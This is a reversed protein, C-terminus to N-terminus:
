KSRHSMELTELLTRQFDTLHDKPTGPRGQPPGLPCWLRLHMEQLTKAHDQPARLINKSTHPSGQTLGSPDVHKKKM